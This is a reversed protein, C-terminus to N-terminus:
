RYRAVSFQVTWNGPAGASLTLTFGTTGAASMTYGPISSTTTSAYVPVIIPTSFLTSGWSVAISGFGSGIFGTAGWFMAMPAAPAAGAANGGYGDLEWSVDTGGSYGFLLQGGHTSAAPFLGVGTTSTNVWIYGGDRAETASVITELAGGVSGGWLVLRHRYVTSGSTFTGANAGFAASNGDTNTVNMFANNSNSTDYMRITPYVASMDMQIKANGSIAGLTLTTSFNNVDFCLNGASDYAHYGTGDMVCRQGSSATGLSGSLIVGASITGAIIKNASVTGIKADTIAANAILFNDQQMRVEVNDAWVQGATHGSTALVFSATVAGTPATVPQTFIRSRWTNDNTSPSTWCYSLDSYGLSAGTVDYFIVGVAVRMGSTVLSSLKWDAAGMFTQGVTCNITNLKVTEGTQGGTGTHLASWNGASSTTNDFSWHTGGFQTNRTARWNPDEFSGNDILNGVDSFSLNGLGVQGTGIDTSVVQSLTASGATSATSANGSQDYAILRAYYTTGYTLVSGPVTITGGGRMTAYQNAPSPTFTPSSSDVYVATHDFDGPMALGGSDKGDWVISLQGLTSSVAPTSPQNPPTTDTATTLTFTSSWGSVNGQTDVCQVRVDVSAGPLMGGYYMSLTSPDLAFTSWDTNAHYKIQVQYGGINPDAAGNQDLTVAVWSAIIYAFTHGQNDTYANSGVSLGTPVAPPSTIKIVPNPTSAGVIVAGSEIGNVQAQLRTLFEGFITDMAATGTVVGQNDNSMSWQIVRQRHLAGDIDTWIWDGLYFDTGPIPTNPDSFVLANTRADVESALSQTYKLAVQNLQTSDTIGSASTGGERRGYSAVAPSDVSEIYLNNAGSALTVTILSRTSGQFSSQTLDRGKRMIPPSSSLTLDTGMAQYNYAKLSYVDMRADCLGYSQLDQVIQLYTTQANWAISITNTWANGASDHTASFSSVDVEPITGRGHALTVMTQLIYGATAATFTYSAPNNNTPWGQPYVVAREMRAMSSRCTVTAIDGEEAVTADDWSIQEICSRLNPIEVGKFFFAVDVDTQVASWSAGNRPYTFQATGADSIVPSVQWTEVDGLVTDAIGTTKNVLRLEFTDV